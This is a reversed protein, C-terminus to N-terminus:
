NASGFMWMRKVYWMLHFVARISERTRHTKSMILAMATAAIKHHDSKKKGLVQMQVNM